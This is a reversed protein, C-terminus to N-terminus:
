TITLTSKWCWDAVTGVDIHVSYLSLKVKECILLFSVVHDLSCGDDELLDEKGAYIKLIFSGTEPPLISFSGM